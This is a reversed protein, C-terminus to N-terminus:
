KLYQTLNLFEPKFLLNIFLTGFCIATAPPDMHTSAHNYFLRACLEQLIAGLVGAILGVVLSGTMLFALATLIAQCHWIPVKQISGTGCQLCILQFIAIAWGIIYPVVFAGAGSITGAAALPDLVPKIVSVLGLSLISWAIALVILKGWPSQWGAWSISYNATGLLGNTKISEKAGFIGEKFFMFRLIFGLFVLNFAIMDTQNIIPILAELQLFAHAVLSYIGGILLVDWSTDVLPSLIDKAAGGPHNKKYGAAYAAAALGAGFGGVHPGFLPGLGVQLLMFDSGGSMVIVCGVLVILACIIIAWLAGFAAGAIGGGFVFMLTTASWPEM